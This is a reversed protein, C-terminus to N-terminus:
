AEEGKIIELGYAKSLRLTYPSIRVTYNEEDLSIFKIPRAFKLRPEREWERNVPIHNELLDKISRGRVTIKHNLLEEVDEKSPKDKNRKELKPDIICIIDVGPQSDRTSVYKELDDELTFTNSDIMEEDSPVGIVYQKGRFESNTDDMALKSYAAALATRYAEDIGEGDVDGSYVYDMLEDVDDPTRLAKMDRLKLWTKLLFFRQYIVEDIGFNPLGDEGIDPARWLLTPQALHAPRDTRGHRHLRGVRQILLDIPATRSIMLDFDLDLSQEIIQTAVLIAREPRQEADKGFANLVDDERESRWVPPFRAHFLWVDDPNIAETDRLLRAMAISEDVTNCVVAICGGQRYRPLIAELLNGEDAPIAEIAITRTEPRPLPHAAVHGDQAVVTLRPYPTALADGADTAGVAELLAQRNQRALTASLLIMPTGLAQLWGLLREIIVNMYSDYSHIEDFILVKHSLGFQRVFHHRAQLVSLMAQDITGVGHPALLARKRNQFWDEAAVASEDGERQPRELMQAYHAQQDAQGHILHPNINAQPYRNELYKVFRGFMQNSTAQTPMAIYSGGLGYRNILLDAIHLALETKGGGTPYEVLVLRPAQRLPSLAAIGASQLANPAFEFVSEFDPEGKDPRWGLFGLESLATQAHQCSHELYERLDIARAEFPFHASDSGIWDCVSVFGSVFAAFTNFDRDTSPLAIASAGLLGELAGCIEAQLERWKEKGASARSLETTTIWDGHHGGIVAALAGAKMLDIGKENLWRKLIVASLIGHPTDDSRERLGYEGLVDYLDAVKKQFGPTAKGIDHLGALLALLQRTAGKDLCLTEQLWIKQGAGLVDDWMCCAVAAVDLLHYILLHYQTTEAKPKGKPERKAWLRYLLPQDDASPELDLGYQRAQRLVSRMLRQRLEPPEEVVVGSGWSRIWPAMEQPASVKVRYVVYGDADIHIRQTPHWSSELLRDYHRPEFRLVVSVPEGESSWVGWSQGYHSQFRALDAIAFREDTFRVDQIRDFKLSLSIYAEGDRSGDCLVYFGDSLPNSIFRYPRIRWRSAESRNLPLYDVWLERRRRKAQVLTTFIRAETRNGPESRFQDELEGALHPHLKLALKNIPSRANWSQRTHTTLARELALFLFEGEESTLKLEVFYSEDIFYRQGETYIPVGMDEILRIYKHATSAGIRYKAVIEGRSVGHPTNALDHIIDFIIKVTERLAM